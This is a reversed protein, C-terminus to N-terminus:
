GTFDTGRYDDHDRSPGGPTLERPSPDRIHMQGNCPLADLRVSLSQDRNVFAVGIRLWHRRGNGREVITYVAKWSPKLAAEDTPPPAFGELGGGRSLEMSGNTMM